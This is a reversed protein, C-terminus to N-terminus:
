EVYQMPERIFYSGPIWRPFALELINSDFKGEIKLGCHLYQEARSSTSIRYQTKPEGYEFEASATSLM